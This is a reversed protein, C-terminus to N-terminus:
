IPECGESFKLFLYRQWKYVETTGYSKLVRYFSFFDAVVIVVVVAAFVHSPRFFVRLPNLFFTQLIKWFLGSYKHSPLM